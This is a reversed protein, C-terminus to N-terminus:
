DNVNKLGKIGAVEDRGDEYLKTALNTFKLFLILITILCSTNMIRQM